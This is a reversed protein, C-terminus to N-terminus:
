RDSAGRWEFLRVEGDLLFAVHAASAAIPASLYPDLSTTALVQEYSGSYGRAVIDWSLQDTTEVTRYYAAYTPAAAPFDGLPDIQWTNQTALDSAMLSGDWYVVTSGGISPQWAENGVKLPESQGAVDVVYTGADILRHGVANEWALYDSSLSYVWTSDGLADSPASSILENPASVPKGKADIEVVYIRQDQYEESNFESLSQETWSIWRGAVQPYDVAQAGRQVEVKAGDPLPYACISTNVWEYTVQDETGERWVALLGDLDARPPITGEVPLSIYNDSGLLYAFLGYGSGSNTEVLLAKDSVVV